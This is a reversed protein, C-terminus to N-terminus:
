ETAGSTIHNLTLTGNVVTYLFDNANENLKIIRLFLLFEVRWLVDPL